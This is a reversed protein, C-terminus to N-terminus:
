RTTACRAAAPRAAPASTARAAHNVPILTDARGAVIITPKAGLRGEVQVERIGKQVKESQALRTGTLRAGTVPDIGTVLARACLAGDLAGDARNTSPSRANIDRTPGGM